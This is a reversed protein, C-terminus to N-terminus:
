RTEFNEKWPVTKGVRLTVTSFEVLREMWYRFALKEEGVIFELSDPIHLYTKPIKMKLEKLLQNVTIKQQADLARKGLGEEQDHRLKDLVVEFVYDNGYFFNCIDHFKKCLKDIGAALSPDEGTTDAGFQSIVQAVDQHKPQSFLSAMQEGIPTSTDFQFAPLSFM